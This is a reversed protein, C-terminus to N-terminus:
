DAAAQQVALDRHFEVLMALAARGSTEACLRALGHNRLREGPAGLDFAVIPLGLAIMEAVVYSFTEPWVSPFFFMNVGHREVLEVLDDRQYPGTVTLRESKVAANLSGIVVV